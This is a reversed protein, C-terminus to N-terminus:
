RFRYTYSAKIDQTSKNYYSAQSLAHRVAEDVDSNGSSQVLKMDSIRRAQEGKASQVTFQFSVPGQVKGEAYSRRNFGAAELLLWIEPRDSFAVTDTRLWINGEQRYVRELTVKRAAAANGSGLSALMREHLAFDLRYPLPMYLLIDPRVQLGALDSGAQVNLEWSNGADSGKVTTPATSAVPAKSSRPAVSPAKSAAPKISPRLSVQPSPKPAVTPEPEASPEPADPSPVPEPSPEPSPELSPEPSADAASTTQEGLPADPEGLRVSIAGATDELPVPILWGALWAGAVLVLLGAATGQLARWLRRKDAQRTVAEREGSSFVKDLTGPAQKGDM